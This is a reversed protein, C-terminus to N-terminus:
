QGYGPNQMLEGNANLADQPIPFIVLNDGPAPGNARTPRGLRMLDHYRNGEFALEVRRELIIAELFEEKTSFDSPIYNIFPVADVDQGEANRVKLSRARLENLLVLAEANIMAPTSRALAEARMLMFEALRMPMGNDAETQFDEYKFPHVISSPDNFDSLVGRSREMLLSVREDDLTLGGEAILVRRDEPVIRMFGNNVLDGSARVDGDRLRSNTFQTININFTIDQPTSVLEWISESSFENVFFGNVESTLAYRRSNIIDGALQAAEAYEGRQFRARALYGMATFRDARGDNDNSLPLIEMATQLGPLIIEDYVEATTSRANATADQRALVPTTRIVLGSNPENENIGWPQCLWRVLEFYMMSRMFLAEGRITNAFDEDLGPVLDRDLADLIINAQNIVTYGDGYLAEVEVNLADVEQQAIRQVSPFSGVFSVNDAYIDPYITLAGAGLDADQFANYAGIIASEYDDATQIATEGPLSQQPETELIDDCAVTLVSLIVSFFTINKIKIM